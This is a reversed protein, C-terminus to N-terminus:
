LQNPLAQIFQVTPPFTAHPLGFASEGLVQALLTQGLLCNKEVDDLTNTRDRASTFSEQDSLWKWEGDSFCRRLIRTTNM